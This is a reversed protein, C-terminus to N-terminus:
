NGNLGKITIFTQTERRRILLSVKRGNAFQDLLRNFQTTAFSVAYVAM